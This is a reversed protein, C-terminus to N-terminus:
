GDDNRRVSERAAALLTAPLVSKHVIECAFTDYKGAECTAREPCNVCVEGTLWDAVDEVQEIGGYEETYAAAVADCHIHQKNYWFRGDQGGRVSIYECGPYIRKGCIDCIHVKKAKRQTVSCIESM